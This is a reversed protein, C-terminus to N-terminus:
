LYFNDLERGLKGQVVDNVLQMQRPLCVKRLDYNQVITKRAAERLKKMKKPQALARLVTNSLGDIDFFDVLLGNKEHEIVEAVPPTNSGIVLGGMSMAELMSWSLVFPYTFYVHAASLQMVAIFQEYSVRGLFFLRNPDLRDGIEKLLMDKYTKGKALTRGYGSGTGGIILATAKPNDKMIKPLARMFIHFGRMPELNRNVITIVPDGYKLNRNQNLTLSIKNNPKLMTTDVGDHIVSIGNQFYQPFTSRQWGTPSIGWDSIEMTLLNNINKSRMAIAREFLSRQSFEPDFGVDLGKPRYFFEMYSLIKTDPWVDKMFMVEGWGPHACIIDPNFGANKMELAHRAAAEGRITKTEADTVLPHVNQGNGRSITYKISDVRPITTNATISLSKVQNEPNAALAPALHKYQGPFNQHIFLINM